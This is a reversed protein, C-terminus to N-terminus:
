DSKAQSGALKDDGAGTALTMGAELTTGCGPESCGGTSDAEGGGPGDARASTGAGSGSAGFSSRGASGGTALASTVLTKSSPRQCHGLAPVSDFSSPATRARLFVESSQATVSTDFPRM